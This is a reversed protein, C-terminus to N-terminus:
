FSNAPLWVVLCFASCPKQGMEVWGLERTGAGPAGFLGRGVLRVGLSQPTDPDVRHGGFGLPVM